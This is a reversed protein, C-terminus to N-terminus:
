HCPPGWVNNTARDNNNEGKGEKPIMLNDLIHPKIYCYDSFEDLSM